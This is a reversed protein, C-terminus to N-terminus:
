LTEAVRIRIGDNAIDAIFMGQKPLQAILGRISTQELENIRHFVIIGISLLHCLESIDIFGSTPAM